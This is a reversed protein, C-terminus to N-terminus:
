FWTPPVPPVPSGARCDPCLRRSTYAVSGFLPSSTMCKIFARGTSTCKELEISEVAWHFVRRADQLTFQSGVANVLKYFDTEKVFQGSSPLDLWDRFWEVGCDLTRNKWTKFLNRVKTKAEHYVPSDSRIQPMATNVVDNICKTSLTTLFFRRANRELNTFMEKSNVHRRGSDSVDPHVPDFVAPRQTRGSLSPNGDNYYLGDSASLPSSPRLSQISCTGVASQMEAEARAVVPDSHIVRSHVARPQAELRPLPIPSSQSPRIYETARISRQSDSPRQRAVSVAGVSRQSDSPRQRAVSASDIARANPQSSGTVRSQSQSGGSPRPGSPRPGPDGPHYPDRPPELPVSPPNPAL